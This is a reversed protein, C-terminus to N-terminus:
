DLIFWIKTLYFSHIKETKKANLNTLFIATEGPNLDLFLM